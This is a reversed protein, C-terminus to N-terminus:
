AGYGPIYISKGCNPHIVRYFRCLHIRHHGHDNTHCRQRDMVPRCSLTCMVTGYCSIVSWDSMTLFLEKCTMAGCSMVQCSTVLQGDMVLQLSWGGKSMCLLVMELFFFDYSDIMDYLTFTSRSTVPNYFWIAILLFQQVIMYESFFTDVFCNRDHLRYAIHKPNERLCWGVM